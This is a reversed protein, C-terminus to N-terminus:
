EGHLLLGPVDEGFHIGSVPDEDGAVVLAGRRGSQPRGTMAAYHGQIPPWAPWAMSDLAPDRTGV